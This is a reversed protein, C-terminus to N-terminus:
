CFLQPGSRTLRDLLAKGARPPTGGVATHFTGYYPNRAYLYRRYYEEYPDETTASAAALRNFSSAVARGGLSSRSSAPSPGLPNLGFASTVLIWIVLVLAFTVVLSVITLAVDTLSKAFVALFDYLDSLSLFFHRRHQDM